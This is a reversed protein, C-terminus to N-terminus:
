AKMRTDEPDFPPTRGVTLVSVPHHGGLYEVQLRTGESALEPPLYAMLLYRGLSPAPGASTVYSRRGRADVIPAGDPTLVPESGTMFRPPTGDAPPELALTCLTTAPGSERAELYAQKGVFDPRKVKPLALGAEVPDYEATLEAGMLRYAKEMRGTTGYVGIGAPRVGHEQGAEFLMDWLRLGHESPVHIEWGFEGVYSIRLMSVPVSGLEVDQSTGFGFAADSLDHTTLSSVLARARPGWVGVTSLASTRDELHVTGDAPLHDRLWKLDRSGEAGGTIVRFEEPGRRVITLDCRFGGAPTLMPTYVVRGVKVDVKAMALHELLALAGPGSIDFIAFAGLDIMAVRERMALHEAEIIPSWWRADWESDRRTIQGTYEEVLDANSSYWQPREWGAAEFYEAGLADTRPHFPSTRLPRDSLWQERPHSIGYIKPFGEAARALVHAQTRAAPHFRAIDSGHHDIESVGDTILEALMRGVGAGEKIWVAAASWLGRVEPTEGVLAGGDPTVSLLGNLASQRPPEPDTLLQPFMERAHELQQTFDEETFPFSTPSAQGPAGYPPIEEPRHLLPRHAYSGIELDPGRQREYMLCDMDRLLPFSIWEESRELEPIPGVDIMQHVAPTLPISAGALAAIRPSWVGCAVVVLETEIEGRDTVVREVRGSTVQIDTVETEPCVTLAGLDEAYQRFLAGAALPDVIAGTPTHFGGILLDANCYPVLEQIEAPSILHAEVGWSRASTMRRTLEQMREQSRAVEIGGCISLVGLEEYQRLSDVTLDTVEKSHDVPFVFNSAHGTSGGPDPLPGKDIQVINRWGLDALHRVAANGVVGAGIVVIDARDPLQAM